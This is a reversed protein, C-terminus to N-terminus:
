SARLETEVLMFRYFSLWQRRTAVPMMFLEVGMGRGSQTQGVFRVVANVALTRDPLQVLLQILTGPPATEEDSCLFMGDANVDTATVELDGQRRHWRVPIQCAVRKTRRLNHHNAMGLTPQM